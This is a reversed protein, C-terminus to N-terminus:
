QQQGYGIAKPRSSEFLVPLEVMTKIKYKCFKVGESEFTGCSFIRRSRKWVQTRFTMNLLIISKM